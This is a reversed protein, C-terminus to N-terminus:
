ASPQAFRVAIADLEASLVATSEVDPAIARFLSALYEALPMVLAAPPRVPRESLEALHLLAGAPDSRAAAAYAAGIEDMVAAVPELDASADPANDAIRKLLMLGAVIMTHYTSAWVQAESDAEFPSFELPPCPIAGNEELVALCSEVIVAEEPAPPLALCRRALVLEFAADHDRAAFARCLAIVTAASLAETAATGLDLRRRGFRTAFFASHTLAYTAHPPALGNGPNMLASVAIAAREREADAGVGLADGLWARSLLDFPETEDFYTDCVVRFHRALVPQQPGRCALLCFGHALMDAPRHLLRNLCAGSTAFATVRRTLVPVTAIGFTEAVHLYLCLEAFAKLRFAFRAPDGGGLPVFWLGHEVLWAEVRALAEKDATASM